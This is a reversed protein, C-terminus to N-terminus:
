TTPVTLTSEDYLERVGEAAGKPLKAELRDLPCIYAGPVDKPPTM